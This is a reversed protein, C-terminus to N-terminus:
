YNTVALGPVKLAFKGDTNIVYIPYTGVALAATTFALNSASIFSVSPVSNGNIYVNSNAFFGSGTLYITQNGSARASTNAGPYIVTKVKPSSGETISSSVAPALADTTITNSQISKSADLKRTM